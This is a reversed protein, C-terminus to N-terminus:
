QEESTMKGLHAAITFQSSNVDRLESGCTKEVYRAIAKKEQPSLVEPEVITLELKVECGLSRFLDLIKEASFKRSGREFQSLNSARVGLAEVVEAQKIGHRLRMERFYPGAEALYIIHEM